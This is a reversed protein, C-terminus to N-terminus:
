IGLIDLFASRCSGQLELISDESESWPRYVCHSMQMQTRTYVTLFSAWNDAARPFPIGIFCQYTCTYLLHRTSMSPNLELRSRQRQVRHVDTTLECGFRDCFQIDPTSKVVVEFKFTPLKHTFWFLLVLLSLNDYVPSNGNIYLKYSQTFIMYPRPANRNNRRSECIINTM